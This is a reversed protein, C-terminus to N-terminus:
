ISCREPCNTMNHTQSTGIVWIGINQHRHQRTNSTPGCKNFTLRQMDPNTLILFFTANRRLPYFSKPREVTQTEGSDTRSTTSTNRRAPQAAEDKDARETKYAEVGERCKEVFDQLVITSLNPQLSSVRTSSSRPRHKRLM